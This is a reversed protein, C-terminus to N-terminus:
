IDFTELPLGVVVVVVVAIVHEFLLLGFRIEGNVIDDDADNTLPFPPPSRDMQEDGM